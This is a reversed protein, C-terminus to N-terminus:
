SRNRFFGPERGYMMLLSLSATISFFVWYGAMITNSHRGIDWIHWTAFGNFAIFLIGHIQRWSKHTLPLQKRFYSTILLILLIFWAFISTIITPETVIIGLADWFSIEDVLLRDIIILALHTLLIISICYGALKHWKLMSKMSVHTIFAHIIQTSAFQGIAIAFGLISVYLIIHHILFRVPIGLMSVILVPLACFVSLYLTWYLLKMNLEM